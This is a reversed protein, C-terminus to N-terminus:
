DVAVCQDLGFSADAFIDQDGLPGVDFVGDQSLAGIRLLVAEDDIRVQLPVVNRGVPGLQDVGTQFFLDKHPEVREHV